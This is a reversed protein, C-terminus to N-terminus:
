RDPKHRRLGAPLALGVRRRSLRGGPELHALMLAAADAYPITLEGVARMFLPLVLPAPLQAALAPLPAPLRDTDLRMRDLGIGPEDIMPGPCLLRWDLASRQLRQLNVGHAAYRERVVPLDIGRRGRADLDLLAAGALFWAVPGPAPMEELARALRDILRNFGAGDSVHGACNIVAGVGRLTASLEADTGAALDLRHEQVRAAWAAPLRAPNRVAVALDLGAALAQEVVVSGLRGTAGLVLLRGDM